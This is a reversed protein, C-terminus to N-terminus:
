VHCGVQSQIWCSRRALCIHLVLRGVTLPLSVPSVCQDFKAKRFIFNPKIEVFLLPVVDAFAVGGDPKFKTLYVEGFPIRTGTGTGTGKGKGKATGKSQPLSSSSPQRRKTM